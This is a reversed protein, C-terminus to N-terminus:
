RINRHRELYKGNTEDKKMTTEMDRENRLSTRGGVAFHTNGIEPDEVRYYYYQLLLRDKVM